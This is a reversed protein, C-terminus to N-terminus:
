ARNLPSHSRLIKPFARAYLGAWMKQVEENDTWSARNLNGMVLRPPAHRKESPAVELMDKAKAVTALANERRWKGVKDRLLLGFEEAAPLCVRGLLAEAGSFVSETVREVARGVPAIGLLDGVKAENGESM